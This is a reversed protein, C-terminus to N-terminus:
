PSQLLEPVLMPLPPPPLPSTSYGLPPPWTYSETRPVRRMRRMWERRRTRKM